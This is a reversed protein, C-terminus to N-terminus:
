LVHHCYELITNEILPTRIYTHLLYTQLNIFNSPLKKIQNVLYERFICVSLSFGYM